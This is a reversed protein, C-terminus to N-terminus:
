YANGDPPLFGVSLAVLVIEAAETIVIQVHYHTRGIAQITSDDPLGAVIGVVYKFPPGVTKGPHVLPMVKDKGLISGFTCHLYVEVRNEHCISSIRVAGSETLGGGGGSDSISESDAGVPFM